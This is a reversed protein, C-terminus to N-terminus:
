SFVPKITDRVDGNKEGLVFHKKIEIGLKKRQGLIPLVKLLHQLQQFNDKPSEM